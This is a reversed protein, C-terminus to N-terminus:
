EAFNIECRGRITATAGRGGGGGSVSGTCGSRACTASPRRWTPLRRRRTARSCASPDCKRRSVACNRLSRTTGSPQCACCSARRVSTPRVSSDAKRCTAAPERRLRRLATTHRLSRSWRLALMGTRIITGGLIDASAQTSDTDAIPAAADSSGKGAEIPPMGPAGMAGGSASPAITSTSVASCGSATLVSALMVVMGLGILMRRPKTFM